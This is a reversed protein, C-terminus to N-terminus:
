HAHKMFQIIVDTHRIERIEFETGLVTLAFHVKKKGGDPMNMAYYEKQGTAKQSSKAASEGVDEPLSAPVQVQQSYAQRQKERQHVEASRVQPTEM